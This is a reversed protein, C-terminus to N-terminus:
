KCLIEEINKIKGYVTLTDGKRIIDKGKPTLIVRDEGKVALVLIGKSTLHLSALSKNILSCETELRVEAVKYEDNILLVEEIPEKKFHLKKVLQSEIQNDLKDVFVRNRAFLYTVICLITGIILQWSSILQPLNVAFVVIVTLGIHGIVMLIMAIKKRTKSKTIIDADKTTFGTGTLASLAQFRANSPEVGTLKFAISGVEMVFTMFIILCIVLVLM